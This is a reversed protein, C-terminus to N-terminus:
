LLSKLLGSKESLQILKLIKVIGDIKECRSKSVYPKLAKLLCILNEADDGRIRVRGREEYKENNNCATPHSHEFVESAKTEEKREEDKNMLNGAIGMLSKMMEPNETLKGVIEGLDMAGNM